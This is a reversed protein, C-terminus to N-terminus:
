PQPATPSLATPPTILCLEHPPNVTPHVTNCSCSLGPHRRLHALRSCLELAHLWGSSCELKRQAHLPLASASPLALCWGARCLPEREHPQLGGVSQFWMTRKQGELLTIRATPAQLLAACHRRLPSNSPASRRRPATCPAPPSAPVSGCAGRRRFVTTTPAAALQALIPPAASAHCQQEAGCCATGERSSGRGCNLSSM